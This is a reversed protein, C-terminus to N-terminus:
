YIFAFLLLVLSTPIVLRLAIQQYWGRMYWHYMIFHVIFWWSKYYFCLVLHIFMFIYGYWPFSHLRDIDQRLVTQLDNVNNRQKAITKRLTELRGELLESETKLKTEEM